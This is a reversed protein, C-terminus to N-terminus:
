FFLHPAHLVMSAARRTNWGVVAAGGNVDPSRRIAGRRWAVTRGEVARKSIGFSTRTWWHCGYHETHLSDREPMGLFWRVWGYRIAEDSVFESINPLTKATAADAKLEAAIVDFAGQLYSRWETDPTSLWRSHTKLIGAKIRTQSASSLRALYSAAPFNRDEEM